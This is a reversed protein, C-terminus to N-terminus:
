KRKEELQELTEEDLAPQESQNDDGKVDEVDEDKLIGHEVALKMLLSHLPTNLDPTKYDVGHDECECTCTLKGSTVKCRRHQGVDKGLCGGFISM